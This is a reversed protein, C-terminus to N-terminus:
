GNKLSSIPGNVVVFLFCDTKTLLPLRSANLYFGFAKAEYGLIDDAVTRMSAIVLCTV